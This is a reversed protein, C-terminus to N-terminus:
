SQSRKRRTYEHAKQCKPSCYEATERRGTGAGYTFYEPCGPRKCRKPPNAGRTVEDLLKCAGSRVLGGAATASNHRGGGEPMLFQLYQLKGIGGHIFMENDSGGGALWDALFKWRQTDAAAVVDWATDIARYFWYLAQEKGRQLFGFERVFALAGETTKPCDALKRCVHRSRGQPDILPQKYVLKESNRVIRPGQDVSLLRASRGREPAHRQEKPIRWEGGEAGISYTSGPPKVKPDEIHYGAPCVPWDLHFFIM